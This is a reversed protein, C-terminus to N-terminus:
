LDWLETQALQFNWYVEDLDLQLQPPTFNYHCEVSGFQDLSSLLPSVDFFLM